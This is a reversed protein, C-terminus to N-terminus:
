VTGPPLASDPHRRRIRSTLRCRRSGLDYVAYLCTAGAEDAHAAVVGSLQAMIPDPPCGLRSLCDLGTIALLSRTSARESM